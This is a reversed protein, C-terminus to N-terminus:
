RYSAIREPPFRHKPRGQEGAIGLAVVAAVTVHPPLGLLIKVEDAKFGLMPSTAYGMSEAALLLYGLAIYTQMHGWAARDADAMEAMARRFRDASKARTEQSMAPNTAEDIHNAADTMDSYIVIAAAARGVQKQDNVAVQLKAKQAADRVVVFRWPQANWSSPALGAVRIIERLDAEPVPEPTYVRISRRQDAAQRVTLETAIRPMALSRLGTLTRHVHSRELTTAGPKRL